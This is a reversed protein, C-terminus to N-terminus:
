AEDELRFHRTITTGDDGTITVLLRRKGGVSPPGEAEEVVCTWNKVMQLLLQQDQPATSAGDTPQATRSLEHRTRDFQYRHQVSGGNRTRIKLSGNEVSAWPQSKARDDDEPPWDGSTFDDHILELVREAASRWAQPGALDAGSRAAAQTWSVVAVMLGSLLALCVLMEVLTLARSPRSLRNM